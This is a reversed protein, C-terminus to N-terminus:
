RVIRSSSGKKQADQRQRVEPPMQDPFYKYFEMESVENWESYYGYEPVFILRERCDGPFNRQKDVRVDIEYFPKAKLAERAARIAKEKEKGNGDINIDELQPVVLSLMCDATYDIDGSGKATGMGSGGYSARNQSTIVVVAINYKKAMRRLYRVNYDIAQKDTMRADHPAVLQLYDVFVIDPKNGAATWADVVAAIDEAHTDEDSDIIQLKEDLEAYQEMASIVAASEDKWREADSVRNARVGKAKLTRNSGQATEFTIRSVSRAALDEASMELAFVLVIKGSMAIYDAIQMCLATKGAGPEAGITYLRGPYFGGDLIRDLSIEFGTSIPAKKAEEASKRLRKIVARAGHEERFARIANSTLQAKMTEMQTQWSESILDLPKDLVIHPVNASQLAYEIERAAQEFNGPLSVIVPYKIARANIKNTIEKAYEQNVVALANYKEGLLLVADSVEAVIIALGNDLAAVNYPRNNSYEPLTKQENM